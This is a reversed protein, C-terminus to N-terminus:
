PGIMPAPGRNEFFGTPVNTCTNKSLKLIIKSHNQGRARIGYANPAILIM